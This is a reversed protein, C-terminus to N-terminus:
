VVACHMCRIQTDSLVFSLSNRGLRRPQFHTSRSKRDLVLTIAHVGLIFLREDDLCFTVVISEGSPKAQSQSCPELLLSLDLGFGGNLAKVKEASRLEARM